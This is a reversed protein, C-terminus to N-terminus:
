IHPFFDSWAVDRYADLPLEALTVLALVITIGRGVFYFPPLLFLSLMMLIGLIESVYDAILRGSLLLVVAAPPVATIVITAFRWLFQMHPSPFPSSWAFFHVAGFLTGVIITTLIGANDSVSEGGYTNGPHFMPVRKLSEPGGLIEQAGMAYWAAMGWFGIGETNQKLERQNRRLEQQNRKLAQQTWTCKPDTQYVRVPFRVQYPKDWWAIYMAVALLTYGLTIVELETLPLKSVKRAICQAIFWLTQVVVLFKALGDSKCKDELEISPPLCLKGTEILRIVDFEDLTRVPIGIDEVLNIRRDSPAHDRRGNGAEVRSEKALLRANEGVREGNKNSSLSQHREFLHFGGMIIFFGHQRTVETEEKQLERIKKALQGAKLFQRVAMGLVWEPFVLTVFIPIVTCRFFSKIRIKLRKLRSLGRINVPEPVNLHLAVWICLFVTTLCSFVIGPLSRYQSACSPLCETTNSALNPAARSSLSYVAVAVAM